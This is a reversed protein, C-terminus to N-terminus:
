ANPRLHKCFIEDLTSAELKGKSKNAKDMINRTNTSFNLKCFITAPYKYEKLREIAANNIMVSPPDPNDGQNRFVLEKTKKTNIFLGNQLSGPSKPNSSPKQSRFTM